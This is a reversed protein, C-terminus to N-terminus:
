DCQTTGNKSNKCIKSSNLSCFFMKFGVLGFISNVM